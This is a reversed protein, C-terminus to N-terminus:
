RAIRRRCSHRARLVPGALVIRPGLSPDEATQRRWGLLEELDGGMDRVGTIGFALFARLDAAEMHVHMDWLGPIVYHGTGDIIHAHVPKTADVRLIRRDGILVTQDPTIAGSQVDIVSVHTIALLPPRSHICASLLLAALPLLKPVLRM